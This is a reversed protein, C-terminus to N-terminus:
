RRGNLEWFAGRKALLEGPAGNEVVRGKDLVLVRDSDLITELRHAVTLITWGGFEARILRQLETDTEKDVSSTAEDLVLVRGERRLMARALCFIQQQGQSLPNEKM